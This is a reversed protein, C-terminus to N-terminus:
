QWEGAWMKVYIESPRLPCVTDDWHNDQEIKIENGNGMGLQKQNITGALGLAHLGM